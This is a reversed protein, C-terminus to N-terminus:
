VPNQSRLNRNSHTTISQLKSANKRAHLKLARPSNWFIGYLSNGLQERECNPDCATRNARGTETDHSRESRKGNRVVEKRGRETDHSRKGRDVEKRKARGRESRKGHRAVEKSSRGRESECSREGVDKRLKCSRTHLDHQKRGDLSSRQGVERRGRDSRTWHTSNEGTRPRHKNSRRGTRRSRSWEKALSM